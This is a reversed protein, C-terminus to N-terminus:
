KKLFTTDFLVPKGAKLTAPMDLIRQNESGRFQLSINKKDIMFPGDVLVDLCALLADTDETHRQGGEVLDRDYVFGSWCWIDKDPLERRVRQVFPLLRKQNAPEFPDGGLLSLGEIFSPKLMEIIADETEKTFEKGYAFDWAESNFCGKCHRTCGSVFLSVRVGNGNAIDFNKINGYNM